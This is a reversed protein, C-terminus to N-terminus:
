FIVGLLVRWGGAGGLPRPEAAAAMSVWSTPVKGVPFPRLRKRKIVDRASKLTTQTEQAVFRGDKPEERGVKGKRDCVHGGGGLQDTNHDSPPKHGGGPGSAPDRTASRRQGGTVASTLMRVRRSM